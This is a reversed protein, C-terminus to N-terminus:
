RPLQFMPEPEEEQVAAPAAASGRSGLVLGGPMRQSALRSIGLGRVGSGPQASHISYSGLSGASFPTLRAKAAAVSAAEAATVAQRQKQQQNFHSAAERMVFTSTRLSSPSVRGGDTDARFPAEEAQGTSTAAAAAAVEDEYFTFAQPAVVFRSKEVVDRVLMVGLLMRELFSEYAGGSWWDVVRYLPHCPNLWGGMDQVQLIMTLLSEPSDVGRYGQRKSITYGGSVRCRVPHTRRVGHGLGEPVEIVGFEQTSSDATDISSFLVVYVGDEDKKLLRQVVAERPRFLAATPGLAQLQIRLVQRGPTSELVEAELAPGLITTSSCPDLLARLVDTPSGRVVASVMYENTARGDGQHQYIALGNSHRYPVWRAQKGRPCAKDTINMLKKLETDEDEQLYSTTGTLDSSTHKFSGGATTTAGSSSTPTNAGEFISGGHSDVGQSHRGSQRGGESSNVVSSLATPRGTHAVRPEGAAEKLDDIVKSLQAHWQEAASREEFCFRFDWAHSQEIKFTWLEVSQGKGRIAALATMSGVGPPRIHRKRKDISAADPPLLRATHDLEYTSYEGEPDKSPEKRRTTFCSPYLQVYRKVVYDGVVTHKYIWAELLPPGGLGAM